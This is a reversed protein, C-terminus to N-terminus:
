LSFKRYSTRPKHKRKRPAKRKRVVKPHKKLIMGVCAQHALLDHDNHNLEYLLLHVEAHQSLTLRVVNDKANVGNLNGFRELWEHKPIVHHLPLIKNGENSICMGLDPAPSIERGAFM